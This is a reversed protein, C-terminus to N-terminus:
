KKPEDIEGGTPDDDIFLPGAMKILFWVAALFVAVQAAVGLCQRLGWAALMAADYM